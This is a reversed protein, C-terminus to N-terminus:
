MNNNYITIKDFLFTIQAPYPFYFREPWGGGDRKIIAKGTLKGDIENFEIGLKYVGDEVQDRIYETFRLREKIVEESTMLTAASKVAEDLYASIVKEFDQQSEFQFYLFTFDSGSIDYKCKVFVEGPVGNAFIVEIKEDIEKDEVRWKEVESLFFYYKPGKNIIVKGTSSKIVGVEGSDIRQVFPVCSYSFSPLSFDFNEYFYYVLGGVLLFVILLFYFPKKDSLDVYKM